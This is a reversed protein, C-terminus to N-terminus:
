IAMLQCFLMNMSTYKPQDSGLFNTVLYDEMWEETQDSNLWPLWGGFVAGDDLVVADDWVQLSSSQNVIAVADNQVVQQM